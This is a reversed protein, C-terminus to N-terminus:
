YYKTLKLRMTVSTLVGINHVEIPPFPSPPRNNSAPRKNVIEVKLTPAEELHASIRPQASLRIFASNLGPELDAM